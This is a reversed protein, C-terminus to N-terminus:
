ARPQPNFCRLLHGPRDGAALAPAEARCRELVYPCRDAFRCGYPMDAPEPVRGPIVHLRRGRQGGPLSRLLGQTYPHLPADFLEDTTASEVIQGAYMVAVRTAHDGVVALDHTILIVGMRSARRLEDLLELVQAQVTVDLATTPEDAVLLRPDNALAIAIMVRQRMGGSLEHPYQGLRREAESIGVRDLLERARVRAAGRRISRHATLTEVLQRGVTFVPDLSTMPEQFVMAVRTGRLQRLERPRLALVDSDDLLVQGSLRSPEPTLRLLALATMTKGCGSEGVIGLVEDEGVTFSVGDVPVVPSRRGLEVRLDRVDLLTM